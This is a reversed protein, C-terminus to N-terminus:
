TRHGFENYDEGDLPQSAQTVHLIQLGFLKQGCYPDGYAFVPFM